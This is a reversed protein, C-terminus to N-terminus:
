ASLECPARLLQHKQVRWTWCYTRPISDAPSFVSDPVSFTKGRGPLEFSLFLSSGGFSALADDYGRAGSDILSDLTQRASPWLFDLNPGILDPLTFGSRRGVLLEFKVRIRFASQSRHFSDLSIRNSLRRQPSGQLLIFTAVLIILM